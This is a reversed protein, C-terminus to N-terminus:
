RATGTANSAKMNPVGRTPCNTRDNDSKVRCDLPDFLIKNFFRHIGPDLRIL